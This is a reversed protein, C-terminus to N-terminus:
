RRQFEPSGLVLGAIMGADVSKMSDDLAAQGAIRSPDTLQKELTARTEASVQGALFIQVARDLAKKADATNEAGLLSAIDVRAGRMHNASLEMAYNLRNLLAGTNVWTEAKDSYGTPPQCLYLPEGIRGTWLVMAIPASVDAGLARAASAVLEFPKKVKSRYAERSWFEPSYIMAELVAPIDGHTELFEKAMRDVLAAPPTDSVFRRAIKTSIFKATNPHAVLMDLIQEGAKMGRADIKKGLVTFSGSAHIRDEFHFEPDRRPARLTWGTFARAVEIVDQQTYGGDVGLTHLEMLERAYNENLGRRQRQQQPQGPQGQGFGGPRNPDQGVGQRRGPYNPDPMNGFSGRQGLRGRRDLGGSMRPDAGFRSLFRQRRQLLENEIKAFAEPDASQWNDLYFLMAPSKATASLLDGFKGLAHRRIVDREYSPLMYNVPGKPAFVNFHNFWFDAMVEQLQRESYIARTLKAASLEGTVRRPTKENMLEMRMAQANPNEGGGQRARRAEAALEPNQQIASRVQERRQEEMQRRYEEPTVGRKAAELVPNPFEDMLQSTSMALTSYRELRKALASDDISEPKLQQQIWKELGLARIREVDGPRPGFALRNLAHIMAQEESLETIPLKGKFAKSLQHAPASKKDKDAANGKQDAALFPAAFTLSVVLVAALFGNAAPNKRRHYCASTGSQTFM